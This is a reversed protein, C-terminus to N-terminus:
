FFILDILQGKLEKFDNEFQKIRDEKQKLLLDNDKKIQKIQDNWGFRTLILKNKILKKYKTHSVKSEKDKAESYL